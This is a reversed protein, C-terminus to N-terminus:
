LSQDSLFKIRKYPKGWWHLVKKKIDHVKLRGLRRNNLNLIKCNTGVKCINSLNQPNEIWFPVFQAIEFILLRLSPRKFTCLLFLDQVSPPCGVFFNVLRKLFYWNEGKLCWNEWDLCWLGYLCEIWAAFCEIRAAFGVMFGDLWVM